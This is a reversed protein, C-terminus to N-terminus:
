RARDTMSKAFNLTILCQDPTILPSSPSQTSKEPTTLLLMKPITTLDSNKTM